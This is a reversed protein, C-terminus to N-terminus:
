ESRYLVGIVPYPTTEDLITDDILRVVAHSVDDWSLKCSSEIFSKHTSAAIHTGNGLTVMHGLGLDQDLKSKFEFRLTKTSSPVPYVHYTLYSSTLVGYVEMNALAYASALTNFPIWSNQVIKPGKFKAKVIDTAPIISSLLRTSYMDLVADKIHNLREPTIPTPQNTTDKWTQPQYM